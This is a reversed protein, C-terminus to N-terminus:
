GAARALSLRSCARGEGRQGRLGADGPRLAEWTPRSFAGRGWGGQPRGNGRSEFASERSRGWESAQGTHPDRAKGTDRGCRLGCAWPVFKVRLQWPRGIQGQVGVRRQRPGCEADSCVRTRRGWSGEEDLTLWNKGTAVTRELGSWRRSDRYDPRRRDRSHDAFTVSCWEVTFRDGASFGGHSGPATWVPESGKHHSCAGARRVQGTPSFSGLDGAGRLEPGM